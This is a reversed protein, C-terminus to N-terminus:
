RMTLVASLVSPLKFTIQQLLCFWMIAGLVTKRWAKYTNMGLHTDLSLTLCLHEKMSFFLFLFLWVLSNWNKRLLCCLCPTIKIQYFTYKFAACVWQDGYNHVTKFSSLKGLFTESFFTLLSPFNYAKTHSFSVFLRKNTKVASRDFTDYIKHSILSARSEREM